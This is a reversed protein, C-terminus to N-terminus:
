RGSTELHETVVARAASMDLGHSRCTPGLRSEAPTDAPLGLLDLLEAAPIGTQAALEAITTSGRIDLPGHDRNEPGAEHDRAHERALETSAAVNANAYLTFGTAVGVVAIFFAACSVNLLASAPRGTRAGNRSTLRRITGVIWSWHLVLHVILLVGLTVAIWFHVDGFDHRGLGWLSLGRGGSGPPLSFKLILGTGTMGLIALLTVIDVVFNLTNRRMVNVVIRL